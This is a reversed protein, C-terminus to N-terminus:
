DVPETTGANTFKFGGGVNGDVKIWDSGTDKYQFLTKAFAGFRGVQSIFAIDAGDNFIVFHAGSAWVNTHVFSVFNPTGTADDQLKNFLIQAKNAAPSGGDNGDCTFVIGPEGVTASAGAQGASFELAKLSDSTITCVGAGTTSHVFSIDLGAEDVGVANTDYALQLANGTMRSHRAANNGTTDTPRHDARFAGSYQKGAGAGPTVRIFEVRAVSDFNSNSDASFAELVTEYASTSQNDLGRLALKRSFIDNVGLPTTHEGIDGGLDATPIANGSDDITWASDQVGQGGGDGRVIANDTIVAASTVATPAALTVTSNAGADTLTVPSTVALKREKTLGSHNKLVVFQAGAIGGEGADDAVNPSTIAESDRLYEDLIELAERVAPDKVRDYDIGIFSRPM